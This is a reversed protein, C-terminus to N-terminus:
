FGLTVFFSISISLCLVLCLALSMWFALSYSSSSVSGPAGDAPALHLCSLVVCRGRFSEALCAVDPCGVRLGRGGLAVCYGVRGLPCCALGPLSGFSAVDFAVCRCCCGGPWFGPPFPPGAPGVGFGSLCLGSVAAAGRLVVVACSWSPGELLLVGTRVSM